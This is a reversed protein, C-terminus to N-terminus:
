SRPTWGTRRAASASSTYANLCSGAITRRHEPGLVPLCPSTSCPTKSPPTPRSWTSHHVESGFADVMIVEDVLYSKKMLRLKLSSARMAKPKLGLLVTNPRGKDLLEVDFLESLRNLDDLLQSM